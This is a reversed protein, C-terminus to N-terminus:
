EVALSAKAEVLSNVAEEGFQNFIQELSEELSLTKVNALMLYEQLIYAFAANDESEGSMAKAHALAQTAVQGQDEFLRFKFTVMKSMQPTDNNSAVLSEKVSAVLDERTMTKATDLWENVNDITVVRTLEKVKAWGLELLKSEDIGLPAFAEVIEIYYMARRYHTDLEKEVYEAFGNKGAYKFNGNEDTITKHCGNRIIYSLVGGLSWFTENIRNSLSLATRLADQARDSETDGTVNNQVVSILTDAKKITKAEKAKVEKAKVEEKVKKVAKVAKVKAVKAVPEEAVPLNADTALTVQPLVEDFEGEFLTDNRKTGDTAFGQFLWGATAEDFSTVVRISEGATFVPEQGDELGTYGTFTTIKESATRRPSPSTQKDTTKM